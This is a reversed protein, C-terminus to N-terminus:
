DGYNKLEKINSPDLMDEIQSNQYTTIVGGNSHYKQLDYIREELEHEEVKIQVYEDINFGDDYKDEIWKLFQYVSPKGDPVGFGIDEVLVFSEQIDLSDISNIIAMRVNAQGKIISVETGGEKFQSVLMYYKDAKNKEPLINVNEMNIKNKIPAAFSFMQRNM